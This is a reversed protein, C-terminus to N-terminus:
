ITLKNMNSKKDNKVNESNNDCPKTKLKSINM